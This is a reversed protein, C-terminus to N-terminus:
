EDPADPHALATLVRVAKARDARGAENGHVQATALLVAQYTMLQEEASVGFRGVELAVFVRWPIVGDATPWRMGAGRYTDMGFFRVFRAVRRM